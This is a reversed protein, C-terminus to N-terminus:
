HVGGQQEALSSAMLELDLGIEALWACCEIDMETQAARLLAVAKAELLAKIEQESLEAFKNM